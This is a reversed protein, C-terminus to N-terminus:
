SPPNSPEVPPTAPTAAAVGNADAAPAPPPPPACLCHVNGDKDISVKQVSKPDIKAEELARDMVQNRAHGLTAINDLMSRAQLSLDAHQLSWHQISVDIHAIQKLEEETLKAQRHIMNSMVLHSNQTRM